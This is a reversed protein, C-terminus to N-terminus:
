AIIFRKTNSNVILSIVIRSWVCSVKGGNPFYDEWVFGTTSVTLILELNLYKM